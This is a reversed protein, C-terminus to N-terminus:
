TRDDCAMRKALRRLQNVSPTPTARRLDERLQSDLVHLELLQGVRSRHIGEEKAIRSQTVFPENQLREHWSDVKELLGLIEAANSEESNVLQQGTSALSAKKFNGKVRLITSFFNAIGGRRSALGWGSPHFQSSEHRLQHIGLQRPPSLSLVMKPPTNFITLM